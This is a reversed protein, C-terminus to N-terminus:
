WNVFKIISNNTFQIIRVISKPQFQEIKALNDNGYQNINAKVNSVFQKILATNNNGVQVISAYIGKEQSSLNKQWIEGKNYSGIQIISAFSHNSVSDFENSYNENEWVISSNFERQNFLYDSQAFSNITSIIVLLLSLIMIFTLRKIKM